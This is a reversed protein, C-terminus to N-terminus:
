PPPGVPNTDIPLACEFLVQAKGSRKLIVDTRHVGHECIGDPSEIYTGRFNVRVLHSSVQEQNQQVAVYARRYLGRPKLQAPTEERVCNEATANAGSGVRCQWAESASERGGDTVVLLTAGCSSLSLSALLTAALLFTRRVSFASSNAM